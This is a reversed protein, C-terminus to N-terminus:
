KRNVLPVVLPAAWLNSGGGGRHWGIINLRRSAFFDGVCAFFVSGSSVPSVTRAYHYNYDEGFLYQGTTDLHVFALEAYDPCEGIIAEVGKVQQSLNASFEAVIRLQQELTEYNSKALFLQSPDIAVESLRSPLTEFDPYHIHWTSRFQNGAAKLSLISQGKLTVIVYGISKLGRRAEESFQMIGTELRESM